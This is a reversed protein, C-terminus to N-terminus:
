VATDRSKDGVEPRRLVVQLFTTLYNNVVPTVRVAEEDKCTNQIFEVQEHGSVCSAEPGVFESASDGSVKERGGLAQTVRLPERPM